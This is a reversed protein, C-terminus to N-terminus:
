DKALWAKREEEPYHEIAYRLATRPLQRKYTALFSTLTPRHRKGVERLMWGIAKHILDHPHSMLRVSLALIDTFDDHRILPLTSVLAIRQEWLNPSDALVYLVERPKDLLYAGVLHPCSLDVLDWNNCRRAHALYFRFIEERLPSDAPACQMQLVLILLACLRAEHWPSQLLQHLEALSAFRHKKAVNRTEPVPIGLFLDGEGYEGPGTKFFRSLHAAKQPSALTQLDALIADATM